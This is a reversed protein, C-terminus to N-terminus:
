EEDLAYKVAESAHLYMSDFFPMDIDMSKVIIPLDTSALIIGEAGKRKLYQIMRKIDRKASASVIGKSLENYIYYDILKRDSGDPTMVDVSFKGMLRKRYFDSEMTINTGLLGVKRMGKEVIKRGCSDAIHLLPVSLSRSVDDACYHISNSAILVMDAGSQELKNGKRTLLDSLDGWDEDNLLTLNKEFNLSEIVCRASNKEGLSHSVESNIVRYYEMASEWNIGGIIGIKKM